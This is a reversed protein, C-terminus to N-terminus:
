AAGKSLILWTRLHGDSLTSVVLERWSASSKAWLRQRFPASLAVKELPEIFEATHGQSLLNSAIESNIEAMRNWQDKKGFHDIVFFQFLCRLVLAQAVAARDELSENERLWAEFLAAPEGLFTIEQFDTVNLHPAVLVASSSRVEEPQSELWTRIATIPHTLQPLDEM